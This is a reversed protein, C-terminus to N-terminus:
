IITHWDRAHARRHPKNWAIKRLFPGHLRNQLFKYVAFSLGGLVAGMGIAVTTLAWQPARTWASADPHLGMVSCGQSPSIFETPVRYVHLQAGTHLSPPTHVNLSKYDLDKYRFNQGKWTSSMDKASTKGHTPQREREKQTSLPIRGEKAGKSNPDQNKGFALPTGQSSGEKGNPQTIPISGYEELAIHEDFEARYASLRSEFERESEWSMRQRELTEFKNEKKDKRKAARAWCNKRVNESEKFKAERQPHRFRAHAIELELDEAACPGCTTDDFMRVYLEGNAM